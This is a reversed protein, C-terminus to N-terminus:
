ASSRIGVSANRSNTAHLICYQLMDPHVLSGVQLEKLKASM